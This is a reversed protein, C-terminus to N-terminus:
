KCINRYATAAASGPPGDVVYADDDEVLYLFPKEGTTEGSANKGKVRGCITDVSQGLMNLRIARRMEGFEASPPDELKAAIATKAKVIVPDSTEAPRASAPAEVKAEIRTSKAEKVVFDSRDRVHASPPEETTAAIKSKVKATQPKTKSPPPTLEVPRNAAVRNFCGWGSVDTCAEMSAQPPLLCSCGVVTAALTGIFLTRM